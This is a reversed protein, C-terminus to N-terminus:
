KIVEWPVVGPSAPQCRQLRGVDGHPGSWRKKEGVSVPLPGAYPRQPNEDCYAVLREQQNEAGRVNDSASM